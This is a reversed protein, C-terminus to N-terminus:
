EEKAAPTGPEPDGAEPQVPEVAEKATDKADGPEESVPATPPPPSFFRLTKGKLAFKEAAVIEQFSAGSGLTVLSILGKFPVIGSKADEAGEKGSPKINGIFLTSRGKLRLGGQVIKDDVPTKNLLAKVEGDGRITLSLSGLTGPPVPGLKMVKKGGRIPSLSLVLEGDALNLRLAASGDNFDLVVGESEEPTFQVFLRMVNAGGNIGALSVRGTGDFRIGGDEEIAGGALAPPNKVPDNGFIQFRHEVENPLVWDREEIPPLIAEGGGSDVVTGGAAMASEPKEFSGDVETELANLEAEALKTVWEPAGEWLKGAGFLDRYIKVQAQLEAARDKNDVKILLKASRKLAEKTLDSTGGFNLVYAGAYEQMAEENRGLAELAVGMLFFSEPTPPSFGELAEIVKDWDKESIRKWAAVVPSIKRFEPPLNLFQERVVQSQKAIDAPKMRGRHCALIRVQALSVFNGPMPYFHTAPDAIVARYLQIAEVFKGSEFAAEAARWAETTPFDVHAIQSRVYQQISTDSRTNVKGELVGRNVFVLEVTHSKGDLLHVTVLDAKASQFMLTMAFVGAVGLRFFHVFRARM